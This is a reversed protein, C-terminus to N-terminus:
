PRPFGKIWKRVAETGRLTEMMGIYAVEAPIRNRTGEHKKMDSMFSGFAQQADGRTLYEEAREICWDFHEAASMM